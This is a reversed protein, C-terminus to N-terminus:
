RAEVPVLAKHILGELTDLNFPKPLYDVAGLKMSEVATEWSPYATILIGQLQPQIARAERLVEIDSGTGQIALVGTEAYVRKCVEGQLDVLVIDHKGELLRRALDGGVMGGGVVVIYM